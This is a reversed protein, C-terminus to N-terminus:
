QVYPKMDLYLQIINETLQNDPMRQFDVESLGAERYQDYKSQLLQAGVSCVIWLSEDGLDTTDLSIVIVEESAIGSKPNDDLSAPNDHSCGTMIIALLIIIAIKCKM